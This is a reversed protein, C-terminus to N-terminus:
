LGGDGREVGILAAVGEREVESLDPHWVDLVEHVVRECLPGPQERAPALPRSRAVEEFGRHQRIRGGAAAHHLVLGEAGHGNNM